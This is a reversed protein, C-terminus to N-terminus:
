QRESAGAPEDRRRYCEKLECITCQYAGRKVNPGLGIVGSLSKIPVMLASETLSIGCFKEPLFKFLKHQEAVPWECYGPSYRNTIKWGRQAVQQEIRKELWESSQEVIESAVADVLFGKMMDGESMLKSAWREMEPGVTSVFLALSISKKLQGTIIPGTAMEIEDCSVTEGHVMVSGAELIRFGCRVSIRPPLEPLIENILERVVQPARVDGYGLDREINARDLALEDLSPSFSLVDPSSSESM